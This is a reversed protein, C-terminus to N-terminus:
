LFLCKKKKREMCVAEGATFAAWSYGVMYAGHFANVATMDWKEFDYADCKVKEPDIALRGWRRVLIDEAGAADLTRQLSAAIASIDGRLRIGWKRDAWLAAAAQKTTVSAGRRDVLYALLEKAKEQAFALPAGDVSVGFQGFTEVRVDVPLPNETGRWDPIGEELARAIQEALVPKLLYGKACLGHADVAHESFGTCFFLTVRPHIQKLLRALTLGGIGRLQIDLFAYDLQGGGEALKAAWELADFADLEAHIAENPFVARLEKEMGSLVLPEDDVTLIHM